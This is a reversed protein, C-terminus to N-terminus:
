QRRKVRKEDKCKFSFRVHDNDQKKNQKSGENNNKGEEDDDDDDDDDDGGFLLDDFERASVGEGNAFRKEALTKMMVFFEEKQTMVDIMRNLVRWQGKRGGTEEELKAIIGQHTTIDLEAATKELAAEMNDQYRVFLPNMKSIDANDRFWDIEDYTFWTSFTENRENETQNFLREVLLSVLSRGESKSSM